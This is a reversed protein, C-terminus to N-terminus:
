RTVNTAEENGAILIPLLMPHSSLTEEIILLKIRRKRGSRRGPFVADHKHKIEESAYIAEAV